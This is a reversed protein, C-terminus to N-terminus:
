ETKELSVRMGGYRMANSLRISVFPVIRNIANCLLTGRFVIVHAQLCRRRCFRHEDTTSAAHCFLIFLMTCRTNSQHKENMVM